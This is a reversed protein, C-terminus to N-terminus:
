VSCFILFCSLREEVIFVNRPFDHSLRISFLVYESFLDFDIRARTQLYLVCTCVNETDHLCRSLSLEQKRLEKEGRERKDRCVKVQRKIIDEVNFVIGANERERM